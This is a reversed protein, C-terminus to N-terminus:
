LIKDIERPHNVVSPKEERIRLSIQSVVSIDSVVIESRLETPQGENIVEVLKYIEL